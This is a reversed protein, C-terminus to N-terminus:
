VKRELGISREPTRCPLRKSDLLPTPFSVSTHAHHIRSTNAIAARTREALLTLPFAVGRCLRALHAHEQMRERKTRGWEEPAIPAASCMPTGAHLEHAV